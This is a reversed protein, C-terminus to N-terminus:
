VAVVVLFIVLFVLLMHCRQLTLSTNWDRRELSHILIQLFSGLNILRSARLSLLMVLVLLLGLLLNEVITVAVCLVCVLCRVLSRLRCKLPSYGGLWPLMRVGRAAAWAGGMILLM